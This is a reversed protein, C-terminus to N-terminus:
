LAEIHPDKGRELTVIARDAVVKWRSGGGPVVLLPLRVAPPAAELDQNFYSVSGIDLFEFTLNPTLAALAKAVKRSFSEKRLSGVLVAVNTM